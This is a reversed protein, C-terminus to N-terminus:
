DVYVIKTQWPIYSSTSRNTTIGYISWGKKLYLTELTEMPSCDLPYSSRSNGLNTKSVDLSTLQNSYCDLSTLATNKSVDLSTLQNSHCYLTKLAPCESVDLSQLKNSSVDLKTIKSSIVKLKTSAGLKGSDFYPYDYSSSYYKTPNADGLNLLELPNNYCYLSTLATNKSVDLATLQNDECSLYTLATNKSVDLSTLQNSHCYLTKLATFYEIGELSKIEKDSVDLSTILSAEYKSFIGDGSKDYNKICYARFNEDPIFEEVEGSQVIRVTITTKDPLTFEIEGERTTGTTNEDVSFTFDATVARTDIRSIWEVGKIIYYEIYSTKSTEGTVKIDVKQARADIEYQNLDSFLTVREQTIKIDHTKEKDGSQYYIKLTASRSTSLTNEAVRFNHMTTTIARTAIETIWDVDDPIEIRYEINSKVSVSFTGGDSKFEKQSVEVVFFDASQIVTITETKGDIAVTIEGTREEGTENEDVNFDLTYSTMARTANYHIWDAKSTVEFDTNARVKASITQAEANINFKETDVIFDGKEQTVTITESKEGSRIIITGTREKGEINKKAKFALVTTTMARTAIQEIWDARIEVEFQVNAQVEIEFESEAADLAYKSPTVTLADRQKQTVAITAVANGSYIKIYGERDDTSDNTQTTITLTVDGASGATPSVSLWDSAARTDSVTASWAAKATFQITTKSGEQPLTPTLDAENPIVIEEGEIGPKEQEPDDDDGNDPAPREQHTPGDNVEAENKCSICYVSCLVLLFIGSTLIRRM